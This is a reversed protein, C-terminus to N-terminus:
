HLSISSLPQVAALTPESTWRWLQFLHVHGRNQQLFTINRNGKEDTELTDWTVNPKWGWTSWICPEPVANRLWPLPTQNTAIVPVCHGWSSWLATKWWSKQIFQSKERCYGAKKKKKIPGTGNVRPRSAPCISQFFMRQRTGSVDREMVRVGWLFSFNGRDRRGQEIRQRNETGSGGRVQSPDSVFSDTVRIHLTTTDTGKVRGTSQFQQWELDM